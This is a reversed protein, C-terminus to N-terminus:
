SAEKVRAPITDQWSQCAKSFVSMRGLTASKAGNKKESTQQAM